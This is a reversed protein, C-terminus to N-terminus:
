TILEQLIGDNLNKNSPIAVNIELTDLLVEVITNSAVAGNMWNPNNPMFAQLEVLKMQRMKQAHKKFDALSIKKPHALSHSFDDLPFGTVLMYDLEGGTYVLFKKEPVDLEKELKGKVYQYAKKFNEDIVPYQNIFKENLDSIGVDFSHNKLDEGDGYVLEMSGGGANAIVLDDQYKTFSSVVAQYILKGEDDSSIVDLSLSTERKIKDKLKKLNKAKRAVGTGVLKIEVIGHDLAESQLDIIAQVTREIALPQLQNTEFFDEALNTTISKKYITHTINNEDVHCLSLKVTSSGLDIIGFQNLAKRKTNNGDVSHVISWSEQKNYKPINLDQWTFFRLPANGKNTLWFYIEALVGESLQDEFNNEFDVEKETFVWLEDCGRLLSFCDKLIEKKSGDHHAASLYYDLTAIPHIPVANHKYAHSRMFDVYKYFNGDSSLYVNKRLNSKSSQVLQIIERKQSKKLLDLFKKDSLKSIPSIVNKKNISM